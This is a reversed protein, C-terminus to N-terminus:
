SDYIRMKLQTTLTKAQAQEGNSASVGELERWFNGEAPKSRSRADSGSAHGRKVEVRFRMAGKSSLSPYPPSCRIKLEVQEPQWKSKTPRGLTVGDANPFVALPRFVLSSM